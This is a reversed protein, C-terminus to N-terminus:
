CVCGGIRAILAEDNALKDMVKALMERMQSKFKENTKLESVVEQRAVFEAAEKFARTLVTDSNVKYYPDKQAPTLLHEIAKAILVDRDEKSIKDLITTSLLQTMQEPTIKLEM